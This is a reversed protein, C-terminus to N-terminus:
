SVHLEPRCQGRSPNFPMFVVPFSAQFGHKRLSEPSFTPMKMTNTDFTFGRLISLDGYNPSRDPVPFLHSCGRHGTKRSLTYM